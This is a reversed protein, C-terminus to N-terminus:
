SSAGRTPPSTISTAAAADVDNRRRTPISELFTLSPRPGVRWFSPCFRDRAESRWTSGALPLSSTPGGLLRVEGGAHFGKQCVMDQDVQLGDAVLAMGELTDTPSEHPRLTGDGLDLPYSGSTLTAGDLDFEGGIHAGFM